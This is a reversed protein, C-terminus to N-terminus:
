DNGIREMYRITHKHMREGKVVLKKEENERKAKENKQPKSKGRKKKKKRKQKKKNEIFFPDFGERDTNRRNRQKKKSHANQM